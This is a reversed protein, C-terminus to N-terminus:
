EEESIKNGLKKDVINNNLFDNVKDIDYNSEIQGFKNIKLDFNSLDEHTDLKKTGKKKTM